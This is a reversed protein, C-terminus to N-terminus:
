DTRVNGKSFLIYGILFFIIIVISYWISIMCIPLLLRLCLNYTIMFSYYRSWLSESLQFFEPVNLAEDLCFLFSQMKLWSCPQCKFSLWFTTTAVALQVCYHFTLWLYVGIFLFVWNDILSFLRFYLYQEALTCGLLMKQAMSAYFSFDLNM